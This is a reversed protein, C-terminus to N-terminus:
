WKSGWEVVGLKTKCIQNCVTTNQLAIYPMTFDPPDWRTQDPPRMSTSNIPVFRSSLRRRRCCPSYLAIQRQWLRSPKCLKAIQLKVWHLENHLPKPPPALAALDKFALLGLKSAIEFNKCSHFKGFNAFYIEAAFQWLRYLNVINSREGFKRTSYKFSILRCFLTSYTKRWLRENHPPPPSM